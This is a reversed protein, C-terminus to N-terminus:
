VSACLYLGAGAVGVGLLSVISAARGHSWRRLALGVGVGAAHLVATTLLFGVAYFAFGHDPAEAGHALGHLVGALAVLGLGVGAPWAQRAAILMGGFLVVSAAVLPELLPPHLGAVGFAAGLTLASMFTAPGWLARGAPLASVSWLGVAVMALLHDAGFPHLLGAVLGVAGHGTHAEAIGAASLGLM